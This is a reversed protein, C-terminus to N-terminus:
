SGGAKPPETATPRAQQALVPVHYSAWFANVVSRTERLCALLEDRHVDVRNGVSAARRQGAEGATELEKHRELSMCFSMVRVRLTLLSEALDDGEVELQFFPVLRWVADEFMTRMPEIADNEAGRRVTLLLDMLEELKVRVRERAEDRIAQQVAIAAREDDHHREELARTRQADVTKRTSYVVGVLVAIPGFVAALFTAAGSVDALM